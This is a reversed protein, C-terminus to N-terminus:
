FPIDDTNNATNSQEPGSEYLRKNFFYNENPGNSKKQVEIVVDLLEHLRSPLETIQTLKLGCIGLNRKLWKMAPGPRLVNNPWLLRGQHTPGLIKLTWRLMPAGSTKARVLEAKDVRCQYRGDPVPEFSSNEEFEAEGFDSQYSDLEALDISESNPINQETM